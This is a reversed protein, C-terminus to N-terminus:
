VLCATHITKYSIFCNFKFLLCFNNLIFAQNLFKSQIRNSIGTKLAMDTSAAVEEEEEIEQIILLDTVAEVRM